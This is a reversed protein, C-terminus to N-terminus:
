FLREWDKTEVSVIKSWSQLFIIKPFRELETTLSPTCGRAVKLCFTFHKDMVPVTSGAPGAALRWGERLASNMCSQEVCPFVPQLNDQMGLM